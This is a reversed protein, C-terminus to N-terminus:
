TSIEFRAGTKLGVANRSFPAALLQAWTTLPYSSPKVQWDFTSTDNTEAVGAATFSRVIFTGAGGVVRDASPAALRGISVGSTDKPTILIRSAATINATLPASVGAILTGTGVQTSTEFDPLATVLGDLNIDGTLGTLNPTVTSPINVVGGERADIGLLTNGSGFM